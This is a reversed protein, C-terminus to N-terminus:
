ERLLCGRDSRFEKLSRSAVKRSLINAKIRREEDLKVEFWAVKVNKLQWPLFKRIYQKKIQEGKRM